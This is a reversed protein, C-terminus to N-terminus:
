VSYHCFVNQIKLKNTLVFPPSLVVTYQAASTLFGFPSTAQLLLFYYM